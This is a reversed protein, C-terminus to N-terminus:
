SASGALGAVPGLHEQCCTETQGTPNGDADLTFEPPWENLAVDDAGESCLTQKNPSFFKSKGVVEM